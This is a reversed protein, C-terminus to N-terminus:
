VNIGQTHIGFVKCRYDLNEYYLSFGSFMLFLYQQCRKCYTLLVTISKKLTLRWHCQTGLVLNLHMKLRVHILITGISANFMQSCMYLMCTWVCKDSKWMHWWVSDTCRFVSHGYVNGWLNYIFITEPILCYLGNSLDRSIHTIKSIFCWFLDGNPWYIASQNIKVQSFTPWNKHNM